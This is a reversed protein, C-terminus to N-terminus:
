IKTEKTSIITPKKKLITNKFHKKYDFIERLIDEGSIEKVRNPFFKQLKGEGFILSLPQLVSFMQGM